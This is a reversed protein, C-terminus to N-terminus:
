HTRSTTGMLKGFPWLQLTGHPIFHHNYTHVEKKEPFFFDKINCHLDLCIYPFYIPSFTCINDILDMSWLSIFALLTNNSSSIFGFIVFKSVPLSKLLMWISALVTWIKPVYYAIGESCRCNLEMFWQHPRKLLFIITFSWVLTQDGQMSTKPFNHNM